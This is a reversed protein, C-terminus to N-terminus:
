NRNTRFCIFKKLIKLLYIFNEKFNKDLRYFIIFQIIYSNLYFLFFIDELSLCFRYYRCIIYINLNPEYRNTQNNFRFYFGYFSVVALPFRFILFNFGNLIIMKTLRKKLLFIRKQKNEDNFNSNNPTPQLRNTNYVPTIQNINTQEIPLSIGTTNNYSPTVLNTLLKKKLM